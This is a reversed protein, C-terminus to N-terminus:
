RSHDWSGAGEASLNAECKRIKRLSQFNCRLRSPKPNDKTLVADNKPRSQDKRRAHSICSPPGRGKSSPPRSFGRNSLHNFELTKRAVPAFKTGSTQPNGAKQNALRIPHGLKAKTQPHSEM